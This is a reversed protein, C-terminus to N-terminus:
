PIHALWFNHFVLLDTIGISHRLCATSACWFALLPSLSYHLALARCDCGAGLVVTSHLAAAVILRHERWQLREVRLAFPKPRRATWDAYTVGSSHADM